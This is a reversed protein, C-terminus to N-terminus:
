FSEELLDVIVESIQEMQKAKYGLNLVLGDLFTVIQIRAHAIKELAPQVYKNSCLILEDYKAAELPIEKQLKEIKSILQNFQTQAKTLQKKPAASIKLSTKPVESGFLTQKM